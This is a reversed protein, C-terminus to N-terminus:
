RIRDLLRWAQRKCGAESMWAVRHFDSALDRPLLHLTPRKGATDPALRLLYAAGDIVEVAGPWALTAEGAPWEARVGAHGPDGISLAATRDSRPRWLRTPVDTRLCHDGGTSVNVTWIDDPMAVGTGRMGGFGAADPRPGVILWSLASLMRSGLGSAVAQGATTPVGSYPGKLTIREGAEDVLTLRAGAALSVTAAADIIGGEPLGPQTSDLILLEAADASAVVALLILFAMGSSRPARTMVRGEAGYPDILM